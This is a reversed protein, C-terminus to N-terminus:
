DIKKYSEVLRQAAITAPLTGELVATELKPVLKKIEPNAKLDAILSEATESWMWAKSQQARLKALQGKESLAFNFETVKAWVAEVGQNKM